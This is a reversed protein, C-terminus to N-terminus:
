RSKNSEHLFEVLEDYQKLATQKFAEFDMNPIDLFRIKDLDVNPSLKCKPLLSKMSNGINVTSIM